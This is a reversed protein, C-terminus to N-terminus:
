LSLIPPARSHRFRPRHVPHVTASAFITEANSLIFFFALAAAMALTIHKLGHAAFFCLACEIHSTNHPKQKSIDARDIWQFGDGTCILIRGSFLSNKISAASLQGTNYVAFFPLLANLAFALLVFRWLHRQPTRM